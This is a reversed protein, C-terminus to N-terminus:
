KFFLAIKNTKKEKCAGLVYYYFSNWDSFNLLWINPHHLGLCKRVGFVPKKQKQPMTCLGSTLPLTKWCGSDRDLVQLGWNICSVRNSSSPLCSTVMVLSQGWVSHHQSLIQNEDIHIHIQGWISESDSFNEYQLKQHSYCRYLIGKGFKQLLSKHWLTWNLRNQQM